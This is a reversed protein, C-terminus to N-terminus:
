GDSQLWRVAAQGAHRGTALCATLLYGGTPAEWDLMEGAVFIGPRAKLMLGQDLDSFRVGGATSIAENLPRLGQHGIPLAKLLHALKEGQPLPRGFENLLALRAKDLRLVKRLHNGLSAKGRPKALRTAVESLPLDALLDLYLQAGERVAKSVAYIASGELGQQSIVFEGRISHSGAILRAAKIPAGFFPQMHASWAVALGANAPALPTIEVGQAQLIEVWKGTSGLRPWSAGGLALVTVDARLTQRGDPTDFLLAEEQWGLWLWRRQLRIGQMRGLWSRLLPSAKMERPFVRGSSGTFLEVGLERAWEQVAQPGFDAVIERLLQAEGYNELFQALPEDRTLNLGSKGAMLLKRGPSPMADAITVGFGARLLEEAAMLGAPGAGIVLARM